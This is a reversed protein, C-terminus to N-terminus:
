VPKTKKKLKQIQYTAKNRWTSKSRASQLVMMYKTQATTPDLSQITYAELYLRQAKKEEDDLFKQAQDHKAAAVSKECNIVAKREDEQGVLQQCKAFYIEALMAKANKKDEDDLGSYMKQVSDLTKSFRGYSFDKKARLFDDHSVSTPTSAASPSITNKNEPIVTTPKPITSEVAAVSIPSANIKINRDSSGFIPALTVTSLWILLFLIPFLYIAVTYNRFLEFHDEKRLIVEGDHFSFVRSSPESTKFSWGGTAKKGYLVKLEELKFKGFAKLSSIRTLLNKKETLFIVWMTKTQDM